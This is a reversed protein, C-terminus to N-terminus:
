VCLNYGGRPPQLRKQPVSALATDLDTSAGGSADVATEATIDSTKTSVTLAEREVKVRTLEQELRAHDINYASTLDSVHVYTARRLVPRTQTSPIPLPTMMSSDFVATAM